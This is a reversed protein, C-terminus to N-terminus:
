LWFVVELVILLQLLELFGHLAAFLESSFLLFVLELLLEEGSDLVRSIGSYAFHLSLDICPKSFDLLEVAGALEMLGIPLCTLQFVNHFYKTKAGCNIIVDELLCIIKFHSLIIQNSGFYFFISTQFKHIERPPRQIPKNVTHLICVGSSHSGMDLLDAINDHLLALTFNGSEFLELGSKRAPLM